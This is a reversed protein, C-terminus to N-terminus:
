SLLFANTEANLNIRLNHFTGTSANTTLSSGTGTIEFTGNNQFDAALTFNPFNDANQTRIIGQGRIEGFTHGSTNVLDLVAGAEVELFANQFNNGDMIVNRGNLIVARSVPNDSPMGTGGPNVYDTGSPDLTWTAPDNWNGGGTYAYWTVAGMGTIPSNINDLTGLTYYGDLLDAEAVNFSIRDTGSIFGGTTVTSYNGSNNPRYLLVYNSLDGPFQGGSVGEQMSFAVQTNIPNGTKKIFWDREWRHSVGASLNAVSTGKGGGSHGAMVFEGSSFASGGSIYFGASGAMNHFGDVGGASGTLRGIGAMDRVYTAPAGAYIDTTSTSINLGYKKSLYTSVILVQADNLTNQFVIFEALDIQGFNSGNPRHGLHADTYSSLQAGTGGNGLHGGNQFMSRNGSNLRFAFVGFNETGAALAPDLDSSEYDNGWHHFRLRTNSNFYPHLNQNASGTSGGMLVGGALGNSRRGTVMFITYPTNSLLTGDIPLRDDTGDFRLYNFTSFANIQPRWDPTPQSINNENGSVDNWQSLNGSTNVMSGPLYWMVNRPQDSAGDSNGVGGPGQQAFLSNSILFILSFLIFSHSLKELQFNCYILLASGLSKIGTVVARILNKM